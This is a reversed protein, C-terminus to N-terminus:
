IKGLSCKHKIPLYVCIIISFIILTYGILYNEVSVIHM